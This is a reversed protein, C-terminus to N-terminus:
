QLSNMNMKMKMQMPIETAKPSGSTESITLVGSVDQSVTSKLPWGNSRDILIESVQRGALTLNGTDNNGSDASINIITGVIRVLYTKPTIDVLAGKGTFFLRMGSQEINYSINWTENRKVPGPPYFGFFYNFNQRVLEEGMSNRLEEAM